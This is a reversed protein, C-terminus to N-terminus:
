GGGALCSPLPSLDPVVDTVHRCYGVIAKRHVLEADRDGTFDHMKMWGGRDVSAIIGLAQARQWDFGDHDTIIRRAELSTYELMNSRLRRHTDWPIVRTAPEYFSMAPKNDSAADYWTDYSAFVSGCLPALLVEVIKSLEMVDALDEMRFKGDISHPITNNPTTPGLFVDFRCGPRVRIPYGVSTGRFRPEPADLAASLRKIKEFEREATEASDRWMMGYHIVHGSTNDQHMSM